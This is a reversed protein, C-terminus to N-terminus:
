SGDKLRNQFYMLSEGPGYIFREHFLEKGQSDQCIWDYKLAYPADQYTFSLRRIYITATRRERRGEVYEDFAFTRKEGRGWSGLPFLVANTSFHRTPMGPREDYVKALGTGEPNITFLQRKPGETTHNLREYVQLTEGTVPHRWAFPGRITKHDRKGFTTAAPTLALRTAGSWDDGSWLELPIFRTDAQRDLSQKWVQPSSACGVALTFALLSAALLKIKM